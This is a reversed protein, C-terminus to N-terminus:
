IDIETNLDIPLRIRVTTGEPGTNAVDIKGKHEEIIGYSISLGLGTGKGVEKTTFFPDFIREQDDHSIGEGTDNVKIELYRKDPNIDTTVTLEKKWGDKDGKSRNERKNMADRANTFLNILVQELQNANGNILPLESTYEEIIEINHLRLQERILTFSDRVVKNIKVPALAEKSDRSFTRLHNIINMMRKTNREIPELQEMLKNIGSNGKRLTRMVFQTTGRIVMLPQNLEHAVGASLEGISALKGSQILQAQTDKLEQNTKALSRAQEVTRTNVEELEGFLNLLSHRTHEFSRGLLGIEDTQEWHFEEYLEKRALRDSQAILRNIPKLVKINLLFFVICLSSGLQVLAITILRTTQDAIASKMQTTDIEVSVEGLQQKHFVIPETISLSNGNETQKGVKKLFPKGEATVSVRLIREDTMIANVFLEAKEPVMTWVSEQLGLSIVRALRLHYTMLDKDLLERQKKVTYWGAIISPVIFGVLLGLTIATKLKMNKM